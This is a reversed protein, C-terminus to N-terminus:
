RSETRAADAVKDSRGALQVTKWVCTRRGRDDVGILKFVLERGAYDSLDIPKSVASKGASTHVDHWLSAASLIEVKPSPASEKTQPLVSREWSALEWRVDRGSRHELVLRHQSDDSPSAVDLHVDPMGHPLRILTAQLGNKRQAHIQVRVAQDAATRIEIPAFSGGALHVETSGQTLVRTRPGALLRSDLRGCLDLSKYGAASEEEATRGDLCVAVSWGRFLDAFPTQTAAELNEVGGLSSQTLERLLGEGYRDVCWRLFLYTSGRSGHCRWLGARYYDPVVLRYREPANLFASVRYDLNSWGTGAINEALHAVAESLWSEEDEGMRGPLYAGFSHESFTIAHTYEHAILTQLHEGPRVSSNLYMMDCQNSFPAPVDTFFDGGRVFGGISVKGDCLQGLWHTLLITFKGNRDVDKHRGYKKRAIPLVREDFTQVIEDVVDQPFQDPHDDVDVYVICHKGVAVLQAQVEHYSDADHFEHEKVFLHFGRQEALKASSHEDATRDALERRMQMRQQKQRIEAAWQENKRPPEVPLPQCDITPAATVVIRSAADAPSTSGLILLYAGDEAGAPVDITTPEQGRVRIPIPQYPDLDRVDLRDIAPDGAPAM